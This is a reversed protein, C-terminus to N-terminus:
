QLDPGPFHAASPKARWDNRYGPRPRLVADAQKLLQNRGLEPVPLITQAVDFQRGAFALHIPTKPRVKNDLQNVGSGMFDGQNWDSRQGVDCEGDFLIGDITGSTFSTMRIPPDILPPLTFAAASALM